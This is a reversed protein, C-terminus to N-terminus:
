IQEDETEEEMGLEVDCMMAIYELDAAMQTAEAQLKTNKRREEILREEVTRRKFM